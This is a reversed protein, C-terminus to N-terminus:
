IGICTMLNWHLDNWAFCDDIHTNEIGISYMVRYRSYSFQDGMM